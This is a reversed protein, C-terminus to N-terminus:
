QVYSNCVKRTPAREFVKRVDCLGNRFITCKIIELSERPINTIATLASGEPHVLKKFVRRVIVCTKHFYSINM